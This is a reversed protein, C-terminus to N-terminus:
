RDCGRRPQSQQQYQTGQGPSYRAGTGYDSKSSNDNEVYEKLFRIHAVKRRKGGVDLQYTLPGLLKCVVYPGEWLESLKTDRGPTRYLVKRCYTGYFFNGYRVTKRVYKCARANLLVAYKM